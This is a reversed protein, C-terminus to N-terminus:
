MSKGVVGSCGGPWAPKAGSKTLRELLSSSIDTWQDAAQASFGLLVTVCCIAPV